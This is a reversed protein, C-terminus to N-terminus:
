VSVSSFGVNRKINVQPIMQKDRALTFEDVGKGTNIKTLLGSAERVRVM